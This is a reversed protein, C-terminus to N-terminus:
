WEANHAIVRFVGPTNIQLNCVHCILKLCYASKCICFCSIIPRSHGQILGRQLDPFPCDLLKLLKMAEVENLSFLSHNVHKELVPISLGHQQYKSGSFEGNHPAQRTCRLIHLLMEPRYGGLALMTEMGWTM